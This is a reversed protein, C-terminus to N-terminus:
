TKRESLAPTHGDLPTRHRLMECPEASLAAADEAAAASPVAELTPM